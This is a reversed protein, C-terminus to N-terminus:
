HRDRREDIREKISDTYSRELDSVTADMARKRDKAYEPYRESLDLPPSISIVARHGLVSPRNAMVGGALRSAIDFMNYATEVLRGFRIEGEGGGRPLPV